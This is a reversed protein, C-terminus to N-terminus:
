GGGSTGLRSRISRFKFIENQRGYREQAKMNEHEM